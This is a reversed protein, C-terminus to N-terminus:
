WHYYKLKRSKINSLNIGLALEINIDNKYYPSDKPIEVFSGIYFKPYKYQFLFSVKNYDNFYTGICFNQMYIKLMPELLDSVKQGKSEDANVIISPEIVINYAQSILFKYGALFFYQRSVPIRFIGLTDPDKPNGLINTVSLGAFLSPGYYYIGADLNPYYTKLQPESLIPDSTSVSDMFNYVGKVAAGISLFSLAKKDMPIQYSCVASIGTNQMSGDIERFISGGIGLNTFEKIVPSTFYSQGKKTLRSNVTLIQSNSKGEWGAAIDVSSFDKSGVIAPNFITPSFIRYSVPSLPTQQGTMQKFSFIFISIVFLHKLRSIYYKLTM